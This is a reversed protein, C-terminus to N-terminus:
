NVAPYLPYVSNIKFKNRLFNIRSKVTGMAINLMTAIEIYTYGDVFLAFAEYSREGFVRAMKQIDEVVLSWYGDNQRRDQNYFFAESNGNKVLLNRRRTEKRFTNLYTHHLVRLMWPYFRDSDLLSSRHEYAHLSANQLLDKADDADGTYRHAQYLLREYCSKYAIEFQSNDM